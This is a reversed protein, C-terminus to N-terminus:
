RQSAELKKAAWAVPIGNRECRALIRAAARSWSDPPDRRAMQQLGRKNRAVMLVVVDGAVFRFRKAAM